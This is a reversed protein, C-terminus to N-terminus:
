ENRSRNEKDRERTCAPCIHGYLGDPWPPIMFDTKWIEQECLSQWVGPRLMRYEHPLDNM